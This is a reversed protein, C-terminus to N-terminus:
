GTRLLRVREASEESPATVLASDGLRVVGIWGPPAVLSRASTVVTIAVPEFTADAAGSMECWAAATRDLLTAM